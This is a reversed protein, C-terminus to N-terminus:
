RSTYLFIGWRIVYWANVCVGNSDGEVRACGALPRKNSTGKKKKAYAIGMAEQMKRLNDANPSYLSYPGCVPLRHQASSQPHTTYMILADGATRPLSSKSNSGDTLHICAFM